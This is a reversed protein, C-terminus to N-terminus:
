QSWWRSMHALFALGGAALMPVFLPQKAAIELTMAFAWFFGGILTGFYSFNWFGFPKHLVDTAQTVQALLDGFQDVATNAVVLGCIIAAISAIATLGERRTWMRAAVSRVRYVVQATRM